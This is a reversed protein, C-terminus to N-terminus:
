CAYICKNKFIYKYVYSIFLLFHHFSVRDFAVVCMAVFYDVDFKKEFRFRRLIKEFEDVFANIKTAQKKVYM